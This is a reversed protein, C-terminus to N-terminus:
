SIGSELWDAKLGNFTIQVQDLRVDYTFRGRHRTVGIVVGLMDKYVVVDGSQFEGEDKLARIMEATSRAKTYAM